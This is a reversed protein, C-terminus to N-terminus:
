PRAEEGIRVFHRDKYAAQRCANSCYTPQPGRKNKVPFPRGRRPCKVYPCVRKIKGNTMETKSIRDSCRPRGIDHNSSPRCGLIDDALPYSALASSKGADWLGSPCDNKFSSIEDATLFLALLWGHTGQVYQARKSAVDLFARVEQANM